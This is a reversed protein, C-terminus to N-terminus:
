FFFFTVFGRFFHYEYLLYGLAFAKYHKRDYFICAHVIFIYELWSANIIFKYHREHVYSVIRVDGRRNESTFYYKHKTDSLGYSM